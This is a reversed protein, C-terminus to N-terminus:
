LVRWVDMMIELIVSASAQPVLVHIGEPSVCSGLRGNRVVPARPLGYADARRQLEGLWMFEVSPSTTM